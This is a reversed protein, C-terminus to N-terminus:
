TAAGCFRCPLKSEDHAVPDESCEVQGLRQTLARQRRRWILRLLERRDLGEM